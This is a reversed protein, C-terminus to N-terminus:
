KKLEKDLKVKSVIFYVIVGALLVVSVVILITGVVKYTMKSDKNKATVDFSFSKTEKNGVSDKVEVALTYSGVENLEIEYQGSSNATLKVDKGTSTNKLTIVPYGEQIGSADEATIATPDITIKTGVEYSTKVFDDAVTISPKINDGVAITYSKTTSNGAKDYIGYTVTYTGDKVNGDTTKIEYVQDQTADTGTWRKSSNSGSALNWRLEVYSKEYDIGSADQAQLAKITLNYGDAVQKTSISQPYDYRVAKDYVKTDQVTITYASSKLNYVKLNEFYTEFDQGVFNTDVDEYIDGSVNKIVVNGEADKSIFATQIEESNEVRYTGDTLAYVKWSTNTSDTYYGGQLTELDFEKWEFKERNYVEVKTSYEIKFSGVSTPRFMHEQGNGTSYNEVAGNKDVGRVVTKYNQKEAEDLKSYVDYTVSNPIDYSVSPRPLSIGKTSDFYYDDLEITQDTLSVDNLSPESIITRGKVTFNIFTVVTNNDYDRITVVAQYEGAVGATFKGGKVTFKGVGNGYVDREAYADYTSVVEREEGRYVRLDFDVFGVADDYVYVEPIEIEDDQNFVYNGSEYDSVVNGFKPAKNDNVNLINVTQAYVGVNGSDDFVYSVVQLKKAVDTGESMNIKLTSSNEEKELLKYGNVNDLYEDYKSAETKLATKVAGLSVSGGDIEIVDGNEKLFRYLTVVKMRSDINDTATPEDITITSNPLYYGALTTSFSIKPSQEDTYSELYMPKSVSNNENGAADKAIYQIYYQGNGMGDESSSAGFTKDVDIYAFGKELSADSKLWSIIASKKDEVSTASTYAELNLGGFYGEIGELMTYINEVNANDVVVRYNHETLWELMTKESTEVTKGYQQALFFNNTLLNTAATNGSTSSDAKYNFIMNYKSYKTDITLKIVDDYKIKRELTVGETTDASVNDDMSIAYVIVGNLVSRTKLKYSADEKTSAGADYIIPTPAISDKIDKYQHTGKSITAKNGYADTVEYEFTYYGDKLPKFKSADALTGNEDVVVEGYEASSIATWVGDAKTKYYVRVVYSTDVEENANPKTDNGTVGIAKVLSKEVGTEGNDTWSSALKAELKYNTYYATKYVSTTKTTSTVFNGDEYYAYKVVYDAAGKDVKAFESGKIYIKKTTEDQGLEITDNVAGGKVSVIVYKKNTKDAPASTLYEVNEIKNGDEDMVKPTPVYLDKYSEGDKALRLDYIKPLMESSDFEITADALTSEVRLDYSNVYKKGNIVYTYSYTITYTGLKEAVFSGYNTGTADVVIKGSDLTEEGTAEGIARANYKVVVSAAKLVAHSSDIETESVSSPKVAISGGIYANKITYVEGQIVSTKVKEEAETKGITMYSYDVYRTTEALAKIADIPACLVALAFALVLVFGKFLFSHNQRKAKM